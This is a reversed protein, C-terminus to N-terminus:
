GTGTTSGGRPPASPAGPAGPTTQGKPAKYGSCDSMAFGSRCKTQKLWHKRANGDVTSQASTQSQGTLTQQILPTAQALSQQTSKTVKTVQFVYFGFQGRVPGQLKGKPASFAAKDLAQDQQGKAVGVLLGGKNKSTPDISYQKAVKGWGQGSSLAQKAANAKGPTKALVLRINRREPTGFQSLHSYYYSRIQASTVKTTHKSILKMFIQNIRFRFLIDQQTQGTQALFSQYETDSPFQQQKAATFAQQVQSNSVKIHQRTAEAQYWYAKILFDLVEGSLTTFLQKCDSTLQKDPTKSLQPIRKRVQAICGKFNPPDTPVIVPSGPSQQAQSKAAVYMWHNFAQTTVPNGAMDAVSNGAVGSGCGVAVVPLVFFAGLALIRRKLSM